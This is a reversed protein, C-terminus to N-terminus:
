GSMDGDRRPDGYPPPPDAQLGDQLGADHIAEQLLNLDPRTEAFRRISQVVAGRAEAM